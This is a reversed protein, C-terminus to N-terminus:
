FKRANSWWTYQQPETFQYGLSALRGLCIELIYMDFCCFSLVQPILYRIAASVSSVKISGWSWHITMVNKKFYDSVIGVETERLIIRTTILSLRRVVRFCARAGRRRRTLYFIAILFKAVSALNWADYLPCEIVHRTFQKTGLLTLLTHVAQTNLTIV